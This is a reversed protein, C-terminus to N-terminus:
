VHRVEVHRKDINYFFPMGKDVFDELYNGVALHIQVFFSLYNRM